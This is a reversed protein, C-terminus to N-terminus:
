MLALPLDATHEGSQSARWVGALGRGAIGGYNLLM